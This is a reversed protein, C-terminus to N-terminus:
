RQKYRWTMTLEVTKGTQNKFRTGYIKSKTRSLMTSLNGNIKVPTVSVVEGSPNVRLRFVISGEENVDSYRPLEPGGALGMGKMDGFSYGTGGSFNEAEKGRNGTGSEKDGQNSGGGEFLLPNDVQDEPESSEKAPKNPTKEPQEPKPENETEDSEPISIVGDKNTIVDPKKPSPTTQSPQQESKPADKPTPSPEAKTNVDKSGETQNGFDISGVTEYQNQGEPPVTDRVLVVIWMLLVLVAVIAATLIFSRRRIREQEYAVVSM